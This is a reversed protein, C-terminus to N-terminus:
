QNLNVNLQSDVDGSAINKTEEVIYIPWKKQEDFLMGVYEGIAGLIFFQISMMLSMFVVITTYGSVPKDIFKMIVSYIALFISFLGSLVGLISGLRLPIKSFSAIAVFSLSLLKFFRYKSQGAERQPAYFSLSKKPFGITQIFGRLFRSRQRYDKRLIDAVRRSILFFDSANPEIEFPSIKNILWYFFSSMISKSKNSRVMNIVDTRDLCYIDYMKKICSPPHQLDGDMCIVTNGKAYDIGAIMAAEHGFNRSFSILKINPNKPIFSSLINMTKDTSGDNVFIIEYRIDMDILVNSLTKFFLDLIEEENFVSIVISLAIESKTKM